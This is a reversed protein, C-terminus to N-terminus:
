MEGSCAALLLKQQERGGSTAGNTCTWTKRNWCQNSKPHQPASLTCDTQQFLQCVTLSLQLPEGWGWIGGSRYPHILRERCSLQLGRLLTLEKHLPTQVFLLFLDTMVWIDWFTNEHRLNTRIGTKAKRRERKKKELCIWSHSPPHQSATCPCDRIHWLFRHWALHNSVLHLLYQWMENLKKAKWLCMLDPREKEKEQARSTFTGRHDTLRLSSFTQPCCTGVTSLATQVDSTLLVLQSVEAESQLSILCNLETLLTNERGCQRTTM